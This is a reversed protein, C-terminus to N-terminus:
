HNLAEILRGLLAKDQPQLDIIQFGVWFGEGEDCSEQWLSEVGLDLRNKEQTLLPEPLTIGIQFIRNCAIATPAFLMLGGSSINALNGLYCERALDHVQLPVSVAIRPERRRDQM